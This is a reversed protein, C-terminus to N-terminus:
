VVVRVEDIQYSLLSSGSTSTFTRAAEILLVMLTPTTLPQNQKWINTDEWTRRGRTGASWACSRPAPAVGPERGDRGAEVAVDGQLEQGLRGIPQEEVVAGHARGVRLLLLVEDGDTLERGFHWHAFRYLQREDEERRREDEQVSVSETQTEPSM